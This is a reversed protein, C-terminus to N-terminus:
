RRLTLDWTSCQYCWWVSERERELASSVSALLVNKYEIASSREEGRQKETREIESESELKAPAAERKTRRERM